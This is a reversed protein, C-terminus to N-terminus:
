GEKVNWFQEKGNWTAITRAGRSRQLEIGYPYFSLSGTSERYQAVPKNDVLFVFRDHSGKSTINHQGFLKDITACASNYSHMM